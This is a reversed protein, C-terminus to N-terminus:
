GLGEIGWALSSSALPSPGELCYFRKRMVYDDILGLRIFRPRFRM